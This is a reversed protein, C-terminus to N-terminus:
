GSRELLIPTSLIKKVFRKPTNNEFKRFANYFSVKNNFGVQYAIEEINQNNNNALLKKAEEIRFQNLFDYFGLNSNENIVQSIHKKPIAMIEALETLSLDSKLYIKDMQVRERLHEMLEKSLRPSLGSNRYKRLDSKPRDTSSQQTQWLLQAVFLGTAMLISLLVLDIIWEKNVDLHVWGLLLIMHISFVFHYVRLLNIIKLHEWSCQYRLNRIGVIFLYTHFLIFGLEFFPNLLLEKLHKLAGIKFSIVTLVVVSFITILHTQGKVIVKNTDDVISLMYCLLPLVIVIAFHGLYVIPHTHGSPEFQIPYLLVLLGVIGLLLGLVHAFRNRRYRIVAFIAICILQGSIVAVSSGLIGKFTDM